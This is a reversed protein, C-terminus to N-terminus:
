PRLTLSEVTARRVARDSFPLAELVGEIWHQTRDDYHVSGPSGSEGAPISIGGADWNGVDWVARFGQAFGPEQLHVTFEDGDGPLTTGSLLGYWMASLPHAVDVAGAKAWPLSHRRAPPFFPPRHSRLQALMLALSPQSTELESVLERASTAASSNPDFRGNWDRLVGLDRAIEAEIPSYTDLQMREFYQLDYRRRMALLQAIRYARYPWEFQASLRYPYRAGYMRNNASLLVGGSSADSHPLGSFPVSRLPTSLESSDHLYRGWAADNPILGALHYAVRGSTDAFIFNEPAGKYRSLATEFAGISRARDLALIAAVGNEDQWYEPWRVFAVASSEASNGVAYETPSRYYTKWVPAGFRVGFREVYARMAPHRKARYLVTTAAEANTAGWAVRENHGLLIGPLGPLTAGAVHFGPARLEMVYWIGPITLDVHPDNALLARGQAARSAPAAWANSGTKAAAPIARALEACAGPRANEASSTAHGEVTVDYRADSLPFAAAYCRAGLHNWQEDRAVVNQWADSLEFAAVISVALSDQPRWREPDYALMRFEVPLPERDHAANVGAAFASLAARTRRDAHLWQRQAIGTVDMARMYEDIQLARPGFIEALRGYAYRRTLEMQFMRDSAQAFGDAFFLDALASARIHPVGRADRDIFAPATVGVGSMTGSTTAATRLGVAINVAYYVCLALAIWAFVVLHRRLVRWVAQPPPPDACELWRVDKRIFFSM